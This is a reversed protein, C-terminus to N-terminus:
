PAGGKTPPEVRRWWSKFKADIGHLRCFRSVAEEIWKAREDEDDDVEEPPRAQGHLGCALRVWRGRITDWEDDDDPVGDALAWELIRRLIEPLAITVFEDSRALAQRDRVLHASVRVLPGTQDDLDLTWVRERLGPDPEFPLLSKRPGEHDPEIGEARALIRATTGAARDPEVVVLRFRVGEGEGFDRLVCDPPPTIAGATGFAFRQWATQRYADLYVPADPPLSYPTLDIQASVVPPGGPGAPRITVQVHERLVRQRGTYNLHRTRAIM